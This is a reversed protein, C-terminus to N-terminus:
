ILSKGIGMMKMMEDRESKDEIALIWSPIEGPMFQSMWDLDNDGSLDFDKTDLVQHLSFRQFTNWPPYNTNALKYGSPPGYYNVLFNNTKGHAPINIPGLNWSLKEREWILKTTDSIGYYEKVCSM